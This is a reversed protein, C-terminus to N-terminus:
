GLESYANTYSYTLRKALYLANGKVLVATEYNRIVIKDWQSNEPLDCCVYYLNNEGLGIMRAFDDANGETRCFVRCLVPNDKDDDINIVDGIVARNGPSLDRKIIDTVEWESYVIGYYLEMAVDEDPGTYEEVKEMRYMQNRAIPIVMETESILIYVLGSLVYQEFADAGVDYGRDILEPHFDLYYDGGMGLEAFTGTERYYGDVDKIAILEGRYGSITKISDGCAVETPSFRIYIGEYEDECPVWGNSHGWQETIMWTGYFCRQSGNLCEIGENGMYPTIGQYQVMWMSKENLQWLLLCVLLICATIVTIETKKHKSRM